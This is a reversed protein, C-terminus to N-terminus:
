KIKLIVANIWNMMEDLVEKKEPENHIEHYFGSWKKFTVFKGARGSFKDSAKFSTIKDSGGHMLLMRRDLKSANELAWKGAEVINFFFRISIKNHVLPDNEYAKVIQEDRSLDKTDLNSKQVLSPLISKIMKGVTLQVAPPKLALELWPSTVIYGEPGELEDRLAHNIALNGGMSHGYVVTPVGPYSSTAEGLMLDIQNVLFAYNPADGRNGESKGHGRQDIAFVAINREVFYNAVHEYRGSHEGMGHIICVVAIPNTEPRWSYGVLGLKDSGQYKHEISIM